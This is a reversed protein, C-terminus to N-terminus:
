EMPGIPFDYVVHGSEWSSGNITILVDEVQLSQFASLYTNVVSGVIMMEGSTGMSCVLDAFAQNFDLNLQTGDVELYNLVVDGPLVNHKQLEKLVSEGTIETVNLTQAHFEDATELPLYILYWLEPSAATAETSPQTAAETPPQTPAETSAATPAETTEVHLSETSPPAVTEPINYITLLSCGSLLLCCLALALLKKM